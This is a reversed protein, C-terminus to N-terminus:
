RPGFLATGLRVMTAGEEVAVRYSDSMGMSLHRMEVGTITLQRLQEFLRRTEAFCPRYDEQTSGLPGMTMLGKVHVHPLQAISRILREAEEPLTGAKQPERGSNVEILVAMRLNSAACVADIKRATELSDVTEIMTFLRLTSARVDHGRLRGIFHWEVPEILQSRMRRAEPIHNHGIVHIGAALAESVQRVSAGKAAAVVTVHEPLSRLIHRVRQTVAPLIGDQMSTSEDQERAMDAVDYCTVARM